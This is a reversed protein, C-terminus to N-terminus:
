AAAFTLATGTGKNGHGYVHGYAQGDGYVHGNM